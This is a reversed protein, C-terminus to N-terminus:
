FPCITLKITCISLQTCSILMWFTRRRPHLACRSQGGSWMRADESGPILLSGSTSPQRPRRAPSRCWQHHTPAAPRGMLLAAPSTLLHLSSRVESRAHRQKDKPRRTATLDALSVDARAEGAGSAGPGYHESGFPCSESRTIGELSQCTGAKVPIQTKTKRCPM